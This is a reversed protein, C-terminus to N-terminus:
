TFERMFPWMFRFEIGLVSQSITVLLYLGGLLILGVLVTKGIIGWRLVTKKEDFSVGMDYMTVGQKKKAKKYWGSFIILYIIFNGLYWVALGNGIMMKLGPIINVLFYGGIGAFIPFSLGAIFNNLVAMGAWKKGAVYRNPVPQSVDGFFKTSLLLNTAPIMLILAFLLALLMFLEKWWYIQNGPDIWYSDTQGGKLADKMWLLTQSIAKPDHTVGPHVANILTQERATGDAFNGYLTDWEVPGPLGFEVLRAPNTTLNATTPQNERFGLFEDFKAQTLLVNHLTPDGATGCQPNVARHDPNAKAVAVATGAGMSHGLVGMQTADVFPLTKLYAWAANGGLTPDPLSMSGGSSGHGFQDLGLSVFGRRALELEIPQLTEKDNQFGHLALVAPLPHEASAGVPVYLKAVLDVGSPDTIHIISVRIRGFDTEVLRAGGAALGIILICVVLLILNKRIGSKM